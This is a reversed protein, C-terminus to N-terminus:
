GEGEADEGPAFEAEGVDTIGTGVKKFVALKESEGHIV